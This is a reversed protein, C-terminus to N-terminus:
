ACHPFGDVGVHNVLSCGEWTWACVETFMGGTGDDEPEEEPEDTFPNKVSRISELISSM